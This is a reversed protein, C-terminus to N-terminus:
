VGEFSWFPEFRRSFSSRSLRIRIDVKRRFAAELMGGCAVRERGGRAPIYPRVLPRGVDRRASGLPEGESGM